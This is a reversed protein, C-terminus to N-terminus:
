IFSMKLPTPKIKAAFYALAVADARDPSRGLRERMDDKSEVQIKGDSRYWWTPATLDGTLEDDPPLALLVDGEPDLAERLLWWLACRLNVFEQKGSKDTIPKGNSWLAKESVNVGLAKYKLERLRSYIGAGIGIIDVAIPTDAKVEAALRGVTQMPEQKEFTKLYEVVNGVLRALATKDEGKYAPDCGWTVFATAEGKGNCAHWRENAREIWNLPIVSDEGSDDFEGLVRNKYVTSNEGWQQKRATVWEPNIRGAAIAEDITVHIPHWDHLGPRRAFVDYFRGSPTGPTSLMLAYTNGASLAGELADFFVDPIAKSEDMILVVNSAHIGELSYPNDSAMLFAEANPTKISQELMQPKPALQARQMQKKIEPMLAKTLQRWASATIPIKTDENFAYLAWAVIMAATTSKGAGHPARVAVRRYTVFDRLIREQYPAPDVYLRERVFRVIGDPTTYDECSVEQKDPDLEDAM